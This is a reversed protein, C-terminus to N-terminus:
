VDRTAARRERRRPGAKGRRTNVLATVGELHAPHMCHRQRCVHDVVLAPDGGATLYVARHLGSMGRDVYDVAYGSESVPGLWLLCPSLAARACAFAHALDLAPVAYM